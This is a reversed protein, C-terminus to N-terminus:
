EATLIATMNWLLRPDPNEVRITATYTMDGLKKEGKPQVRLVTGRLELDPIADFTLRVEQDARVRVVDL